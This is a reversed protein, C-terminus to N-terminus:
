KPSVTRFCLNGDTDVRDYSTAWTAGKGKTLSPFNEYGATTTIAFGAPDTVSGDGAIRAGYIDYNGNRRDAWAVLFAGNVAVAPRSQDGSQAWVAIGGGDLLGSTPSWRAAYIDYNTGSRRDQWVALVVNGDFALDPLVQDGAATSFPATFADNATGDTLVVTGYIDYSTGSRDDQWVVLYHTGYSVVSPAGQTGAAVAISIGAPDLGGSAVSFRTGYIDSISGARYDEWVVLFQDTGNFAIEPEFQSGPATSFPAASTDLVTGNTRVRTGYIDYNGNRRDSWAVLYYPGYYVVTPQFQDSNPTSTTILIGDPDLVVGDPDIRTGYIDGMPGNRADTWVVLYNTGDFAVDSDYQNSAAASVVREPSVTPDLTLPYTAGALADHPVTLRLRGSDFRPLARHLVAGTADKVVLEGMRLEGGGPLGLRLTDGDPVAHTAGTLDASVVLDGRGAPTSGLVVDWEIQGDRVTVAERIGPAVQREARNADGQWEGRDLPIAHGGREISTLSLSLSAEAGTPRLEVGAADFSVRYAAGTAALEGPHGDPAVRHRVSDVIKDTDIGAREPDAAVSRASALGNGSAASRGPMSWPFGLAGGGLLYAALAALAAVAGLRRRDPRRPRGQEGWPLGVAAPIMWAAAFSPRMSTTTVTV